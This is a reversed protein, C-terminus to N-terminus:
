EGGGGWIRYVYWAIYGVPLVGIVAIGWVPLFGFPILAILIVGSGLIALTANGTKSYAFGAAAVMAVFALAVKATDAPIGLLTGISEAGEEIIAPADTEIAEPVPVPPQPVPIPRSIGEATTVRYEETAMALPTVFDNTAILVLMRGLGIRTCPDFTVFTMRRDQADTPTYSRQVVRGCYFARITYDAGTTLGTTTVQITRDQETTVDPVSGVAITVGSQAHAERGMSSLILLAGLFVAILIISLQRQSNPKTM